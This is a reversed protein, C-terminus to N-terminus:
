RKVSLFNFKYWEPAQESEKPIPGPQKQSTPGQIHYMTAPAGSKSRGGVTDSVSQGPASTTTHDAKNKDPGSCCTKLIPQQHGAPRLTYNALYYM